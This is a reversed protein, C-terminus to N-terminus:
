TCVEGARTARLMIELDNETSPGLTGCAALGDPAIVYTEPQGTTGFDLSAQEGGQLAVPWGIKNRDVYGRIARDDDDRVIGIMAFDPDNKHADYFTQLAPAEQQCPICWSNFFNVVYTKGQLQKADIKKGDLTTVTFAPVPRHQQVLRPVSPESRHQVALVVGFAVLVVGVMLAIWRARLKV